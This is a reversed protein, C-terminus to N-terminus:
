GGPGLDVPVGVVVVPATTEVAHSLGPGAKVDGKPMSTSVDGSPSVSVPANQVNLLSAYPSAGVSASQTPVVAGITLDSITVTKSPVHILNITGDLTAGGNTWQGVSANSVSSSGVEIPLVLATIAASSVAPTSYSSSLTPVVSGNPLSPLDAGPIFASQGSLSAVTGAKLSPTQIVTPAVAGPAVSSAANLIGAAASLVGNGIAVPSLNMGASLQPTALTTSHTAATTLNGTVTNM